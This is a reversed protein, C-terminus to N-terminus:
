WDRGDLMKEDHDARWRMSEEASRQLARYLKEEESGRPLRDAIEKAKDRQQVDAALPQGPTGTRVGSIAAGYFAGSLREVSEPGLRAAVRLARRVFEVETYVFEPPAQRVITALASIDGETPTSLSEELVAIVADDYRLAVAAFLKGGETSRKWSDPEQALWAGIARLSEVFDGHSRLQLASTWQFPLPDYDDGADQMEWREIRDMLLRVVQSPHEKSLGSLLHGTWYGEISPCSRLQQLFHQKQPESLEDWRVAGEGAFIQVVEEVVESSNGVEIQSALAIAEIRASAVLRQAARGVYTRALPDPDTALEVLVDYEGGILAARMGRNWGLAQAVARRLAVDNTDLLARVAGLWADPGEEALVAVVVPLIQVLVSDPQESIRACIALGLSPRTKVLTWVFPGPHGTSREGALSQATLRITLIELLQEDSHAAVLEAALDGMQKQKIEEATEFDRTRGEILDGWGDTLALATRTQLTDSLSSIVERAADRTGLESYELHWKLMRRISVAVIPDVRNSAVRIALQRLTAIFIPTWSDREADRVERGFLGHPYHLGAGILEVARTARRIDSSGLHEMAIAIVRERLDHVVAPNVLFPRFQLAFGVSAQQSGETALMPGLVDLPTARASPPDNSALWQEAADILRDNYELPKRPEIEAMASLVRLPHNPYPNTPRPDLVALTWLLDAAQPLHELNYAIARLVDPVEELVQGYTPPYVRALPDDSEEVSDTPNDIIWKILALSRQPEFFAVKQLMKLVGLRGLVGASRTFAEVEDWLTDTVSQAGSNDHRIRWDIRSANVFVNRVADGGVSAWAREIYGTSSQSASDFCAETLVVDGLLDPIVRMSSGRRLLVGADELARLHSMARDYPRDILKSLSEQFAPDDTRFPQLIAIGDLVSRRIEPDGSVPDAVVVVRFKRLVEQRITEEHDVCAPDLDGRRILVGAVVTIFPCDVTLVGLREALIDTWGPGLAERALATADDRALDPLEWQPLDGARIGIRALDSTLANVGYPRLALLVKVQPGRRLLDSVVTLLDDRDHADDIIVVVPRDTPLREYHGANLDVGPKVFRLHVGHGVELRGAVERLLRSKGIGGRGVIFGIQEGGGSLFQLIADVEKQRGVLHWEHTYIPGASLSLFFEETSLWPGPEAIGLLAERWGPFYTDVIRVGTDSPLSRIIRSLDEGDWLEWGQYKKIEERAGPSAHRRSLVLYHINAELTVAAIAEAIRAPGFRIHRKCQFTAIYRSDEVAVIDVGHQEHGPGGFRSVRARSYLAQAIDTVLEEFRDPGLESVPLATLLPRVPRQPPPSQDALRTYNAAALLEEADVNFLAAMEVVVGRRPRSRGSEWRSVTQQGVRGGLRRALEAQDWGRQM